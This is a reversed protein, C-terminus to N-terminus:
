PKLNKNINIGTNAKIKKAIFEKIIEFLRWGTMNFGNEAISWVLFGSVLWMVGNSINAINQNMEKDM